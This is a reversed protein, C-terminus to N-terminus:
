SEACLAFFKGYLHLGFYGERHILRGTEDPYGPFVLASGVSLTDLVFTRKVIKMLYNEMATDGPAYLATEFRDILGGFHWDGQTGNMEPVCKYDATFILKTDVALELLKTSLTDLGEFALPIKVLGGFPSTRKWYGDYVFECGNNDFMEGLISDEEIFINAWVDLLPDRLKKM